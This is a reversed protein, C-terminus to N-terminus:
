KISPNRSVRTQGSANKAIGIHMKNTPVVINSNFQGILVEPMDEIEFAANTWPHNDYDSYKPHGKLHYKTDYFYVMVPFHTGGHEAIIAARHRGEHGIIKGSDLIVELFPMQYEDKDFKDVFNYDSNNKFIENFEKDSTTTLRIFDKPDMVAVLGPYRSFSQKVGQKSLPLHKETLIEAIKM